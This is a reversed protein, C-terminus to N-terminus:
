LQIYDSENGTPHGFDQSNQRSSYDHFDRGDFPPSGDHSEQAFQQGGRQTASPPQASTRANADPYRAAQPPRPLPAQQQRPAQAYSQDGENQQPRPMHVKSWATLKYKVKTRKQKTERDVWESTEQVGTANVINGKELLEAVQQAEEGWSVFTAREWHTKWEGGTRSRRTWIIDFECKQASQGVTLLQPKEGIFGTASITIM